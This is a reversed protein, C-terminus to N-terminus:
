GLFAAGRALNVAIIAAASALLAGGLPSSLYAGWRTNKEVAMIVGLGLMWAINGTGVVFMLLMIAWCCGVCFVGHDLGLLLASRLPNPGHWHKAIFSFPTRCRSLCHYKLRSFQFLGAAAFIAAGVAWGNLSLWISQQAVKHLGSDALHAIAGVGLWVILYGSIVLAVLRRRDPREHVARDFRDLLPLTTPLMMASIMLLWGGVYLASPVHMEGGPLAHCIALVSGTGVWSGHDLYRGYPSGGWLWLAAWSFVTLVVTIPLFRSRASTMGRM